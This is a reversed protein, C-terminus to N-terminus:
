KSSWSFTQQRENLKVYLNWSKQANGTFFPHWFSFSVQKKQATDFM